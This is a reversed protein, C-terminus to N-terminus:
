TKYQMIYDNFVVISTVFDRGACLSRLLLGTTFMLMRIASHSVFFPQKM